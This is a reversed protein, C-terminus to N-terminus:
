FILYAQEHPSISLVTTKPQLEETATQGLHGLHGGRNKMLVRNSFIKRM